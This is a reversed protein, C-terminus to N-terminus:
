SDIKAEKYLTDVVEQPGNFNLMQMAKKYEKLQKLFKVKNKDGSKISM